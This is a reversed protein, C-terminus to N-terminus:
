RQRLRRGLDGHLAGTIFNWIQEPVPLDLQMQDRVIKSLEPDARPGLITTVPDGPILHVLAALFTMVVLLVLATMALRKLVYALM